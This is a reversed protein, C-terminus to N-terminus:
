VHEDVVPAGPIGVSRALAAFMTASYQAIVEGTVPNVEEVFKANSSARFTAARGSDNLYKNVVAVQAALDAANQWIQHPDQQQPRKPLSALGQPPRQGVTPQAASPTASIKGEQPLTNGSRQILVQAPAQSGHALGITPTQVSPVESAM